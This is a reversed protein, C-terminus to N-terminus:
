ANSPLQGLVRNAAQQEESELVTRRRQFERYDESLVDDYHRLYVYKGGIFLSTGLLIHRTDSDKVTILWRNDLGATGVIVNMEIFQISEINDLDICRVDDELAKIVDSHTLEVGPYTFCITFPYSEPPNKFKRINRFSIDHTKKKNKERRRRERAKRRVYTVLDLDEDSSSNSELKKVSSKKSKVKEDHKVLKKEVTGGLESKSQPENKDLPSFNSTVLTEPVRVLHKREHSVSM